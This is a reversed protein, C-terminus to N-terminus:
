NSNLCVKLYNKLKKGKEEGRSRFMDLIFNM